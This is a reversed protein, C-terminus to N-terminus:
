MPCRSITRISNFLASQLIFFLTPPFLHKAFCGAVQEYRGSCLCLGAHVCASFAEHICQSLAFSKDRTYMRVLHPLSCQIFRLIPFQILGRFVVVGDDFQKFSGGGVDCFINRRTGQLKQLFCTSSFPLARLAAARAARLRVTDESGLESMMM